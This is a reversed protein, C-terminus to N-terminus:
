VINKLSGKGFHIHSVHLKEVWNHIHVMKCQVKAYRYKKDNKVVPCQKFECNNSYDRGVASGDPCIKADDTCFMPEVIDETPENCAKAFKANGLDNNYLLKYQLKGHNGESLEKAIADPILVSFRADKPQLATKICLIDEDNVKLANEKGQKYNVNKICDINEVNNVKPHIGLWYTKDNNNQYYFWGSENDSISWDIEL